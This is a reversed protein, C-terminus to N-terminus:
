KNKSKPPSPSTKPTLKHKGNLKNPHIYRITKTIPTHIINPHPQTEKQKSPINRKTYSTHQTQLALYINKNFLYYFIGTKTPPPITPKIPRHQYVNTHVLLQSNKIIITNHPSTLKNPPKTPNKILSRHKHPHSLKYKTPSHTLRYTTKNPPVDLTPTKNPKTHKTQQMNIRYTKHTKTSEDMNGKLTHKSPLIHSHNIKNHKKKNPGTPQTQKLKTTSKNTHQTNYHIKSNKIKTQPTIGLKPKQSYGKKNTTELLHSNKIVRKNHPFTIKKHLKSLLKHKHPHPFKYKTQLYILRHPNKTDNNKPPTGM